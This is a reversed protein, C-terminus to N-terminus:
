QSLPTDLNKLLVGVQRSAIIKEKIQRMVEKEREKRESEYSISHRYPPAQSM